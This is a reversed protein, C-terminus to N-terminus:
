IGMKPVATLCWVGALRALCPSWVETDVKFVGSLCGLGNLTKVDSTGCLVQLIDDVLLTTNGEAPEIVSTSTGSLCFFEAGSLYIKFYDKHM